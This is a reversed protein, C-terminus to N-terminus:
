RGLLDSRESDHPGEQAEAHARHPSRERLEHRAADASITSAEASVQRGKGETRGRGPTGNGNPSMASSSQIPPAGSDYPTANGGQQPSEQESADVAVDVHAIPRESQASSARMAATQSQVAAEIAQVMESTLGHPVLSRAQLLFLEQQGHLGASPIGPTNQMSPMTAQSEADKAQQLHLEAKHKRAANAAM